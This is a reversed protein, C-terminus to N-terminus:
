TPPPPRTKYGNRHIGQANRTAEQAERGQRGVGTGMTVKGSEGEPLNIDPRKLEIYFVRRDIKGKKESPDSATMHLKRRLDERRVQDQKQNDDLTDDQMAGDTYCHACRINFYKRRSVGKCSVCEGEPMCQYRPAENSGPACPICRTLEVLRSEPIGHPRPYIMRCGTCGNLGELCTCRHEHINLNAVIMFLHEEFTKWWTKLNESDAAANGTAEPLVPTEVAADRRKPVKLKKLVDYAISLRHYEIPLEAKLQTDLDKLALERLRPYEALHALTEPSFSGQFLGHNHMSGRKSTEIV